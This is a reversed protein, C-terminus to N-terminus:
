VCESCCKISRSSYKCHHLLKEYLSNWLRFITFIYLLDENDTSETDMSKVWRPNQVLPPVVRRHHRPCLRPGLGPPDRHTPDPIEKDMTKPMQLPEHFLVGCLHQSLVQARVLLMCKHMEVAYYMFEICYEKCGQLPPLMIRGMSCICFFPSLCEITIGGSKFWPRGPGCGLKKASINRLLIKSTLLFWCKYYFNIM